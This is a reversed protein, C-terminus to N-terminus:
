EYYKAEIELKSFIEKYEIDFLFEECDFDEDQLSFKILELAEKKVLEPCKESAEKWFDMTPQDNDCFMVNGEQINETIEQITM